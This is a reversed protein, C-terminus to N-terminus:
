KWRWRQLEHNPNACYHMLMLDKPYPCCGVCSEDCKRQGAKLHRPPFVEHSGVFAIRPTLCYVTSFPKVYNWFWNTSVSAPGIVVFEAGRNQELACKSVWKEMPDFEPNLWGLKGDLLKAWNVTFTDMEPTIFYPAKANDATAALDWTIEGFKEEVAFIFEWPTAVAQVSKGRKM